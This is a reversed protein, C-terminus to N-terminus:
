RTPGNVENNKLLEKCYEVAIIRARTYDIFSLINENNPILQYDKCQEVGYERINEVIQYLLIPNSNIANIVKENQEMIQERDPVSDYYEVRLGQNVKRNIENYLLEKENM